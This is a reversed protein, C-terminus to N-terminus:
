VKKNYYALLSIDSTYPYKYASRFHYMASFEMHSGM